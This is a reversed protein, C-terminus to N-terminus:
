SFLSFYRMVSFVDFLFFLAINSIEKCLPAHLQFSSCFANYTKSIEVDYPFCVRLSLIWSPRGMQGFIVFAFNSIQDRWPRFHGSSKILLQGKMKLKEYDHM